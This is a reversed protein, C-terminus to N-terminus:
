RRGPDLEELQEILPTLFSEYKKWKGVATRYIPQRVQHQSATRTRRGQRHFDLCSPTWDLGCFRALARTEAEPEEVLTEYRIERYREAPLISRWHHALKEYARYYRGLEKLDRCYEHGRAFNTSYCSWCIDLPERRCHIIRANPFAALILGAFLFNGPLKDLLRAAPPALGATAIRYADSVSALHAACRVEDSLIEPYGGFTMDAALVANPLTRLEGGSATGPLAALIQEVLSTGSRPMGVIFIPDLDSTQLISSSRSLIDRTFSKAIRRMMDEDAAVDYAYTARKLRNGAAIEEFMRRNDGLGGFARALAFHMMVKSKIPQRAFVSDAAREVEALDSPREAFNIMSALNYWAEASNPKLALARRLLQAAAAKDGVESRETSLEILAQHFAPDCVLATRLSTRMADIEGLLDFACALHFHTSAFEPSLRAAMHCVDRAELARDLEILTAGLENWIESAAPKLHLARRYSREASRPDDFQRQVNGLNYLADAYNPVLCLAAKYEGLARRIDGLERLVTGYNNRVHGVGPSISVSRALCRAASQNDDTLHGCLGLAHWAEAGDAVAVTSIKALRRARAIDGGRLADEAVIDFWFSGIPM